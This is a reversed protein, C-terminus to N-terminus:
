PWGRASVLAAFALSAVIAPLVALAAVSVLRSTTTAVRVRVFLAALVAGVAFLWSM